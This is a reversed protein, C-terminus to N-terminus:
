PASGSAKGDVALITDLQTRLLADINKKAGVIVTEIRGDRRVVALTPFSRVKFLAGIKNDPEYVLELKSGTAEITKVAADREIPKRMTQILNVFRVGKKEYEERISEVLPLQRRCFGCNAAVFNLVTAPADQIEQDGVPKDQLTKASFAPIALGIMGLAPRRLIEEPTPGSTPTTTVLTTPELLAELRAKVSPVFDPPNGSQVIEIKGSKGIVVLTPYLVLHYKEAVVNGLDIALEARAKLGQLSNVMQEQTFSAAPGQEAVNIFRVGRPEYQQRLQECKKLVETNDFNHSTFFNLALVSSQASSATVSKGEITTLEFPPAPKGILKDIPTPLGGEALPSTPVAPGIVAVEVTPQQSDDTHLTIVRPKSGPDYGKPLLVTIKYSRGPKIDTVDVVIAPDDTRAELVHVPTEGNNAFMLVRATEAAPNPPGIEIKNPIIEIRPSLYAMARIPINPQFNLDTTLNIAAQRRGPDYPPKLSVKLQYEEGHRTETLEFAFADSDIKEMEIKVPEDLHNTLTITMDRPQGASIKGFGAMAPSVEIPPKAIGRLTLTVKPTIPDNIELTAHKEFVGDNFPAVGFLVLETQSTPPIRRPSKPDMQCGDPSSFGSIELPITGLNQVVFAGQIRSGCWAAGVEAVSQEVKIIALPRNPRSTPQFASGANSVVGVLVFALGLCWRSTM